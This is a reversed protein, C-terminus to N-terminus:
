LSTFYYANTAHKFSKYFLIFHQAILIQNLAMIRNTNEYLICHTHEWYVTQKIQNRFRVAIM